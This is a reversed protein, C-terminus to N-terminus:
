RHIERYPDTKLDQLRDRLVSLFLLAVGGPLGLVLFITLPDGTEAVLHWLSLGSVISMWGIVLFWGASRSLASIRSKPLEPWGDDDPVLFRTDLAAQRLTGMEDLMAKCTPCDELHLRVRQTQRHPLAQDLYGTLLTEDFPRTCPSTM